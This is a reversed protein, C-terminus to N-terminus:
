SLRDKLNFVEVATDYLVAKLEEESLDSNRIKALEARANEEMDTAFMIRPGYARVWNKILFGPTWSSDGYVNPCLEFMKAANSAAVVMGCHALIIKVDSYERALDLLGIPDSFSDPATHVMLPINHRRADDFCKRGSKTNPIVGSAPPNLKISTFGLEEVCRTIEDHYIDAPLHPSPNAMGFFRGPFEECLEAIANHQEQVIALDHCQGPQVIQVDIERNNMKDILAERPFNEDFTYDWGLHVHVDVIM